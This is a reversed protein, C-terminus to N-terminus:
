RALLGSFYDLAARTKTQQVGGVTIGRETLFVRAEVAVRFGDAPACKTSLELIREGDPYLWLEAVMRPALGDPSFKLKFVHIPGLPTLDDLTLGDPAHDAFFQRQAKSFLKSVPLGERLTERVTAKKPSGKMSASCVYGGPLADVEVGFDERARLEPDLEQPVVPRLKVVTDDPRGQSRRARVVVGARDLALDPTDFFWVQRIQADLPDMGLADVSSARESDAVTLKLEMSDAEGLLSLLEALQDDTLPNVSRDERGM